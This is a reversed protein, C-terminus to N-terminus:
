AYGDAARLSGSVADIAAADDTSLATFANARYPRRPAVPADGLELTDFIRGLQADPDARLDDYSLEVLQDSRLLPRADFWARHLSDYQRLITTDPSEERQQLMWFWDVTDYLHRTSAFVQHPHRHIHVFRANPFWRLLHPVRATHAPSKLLPRAASDIPLRGLFHHLANRFRAREADSCDNLTLFREYHPLARPFSRGLYPSCGSLLAIAYEDEEPLHFGLPVDDQVRKPPVLFGFAKSAARESVRFTRPNVVQFANPAVLTPSAAMLHHLWTTGSRWHGVIFVPDPFPRPRARDLRRVTSNYASLTTIQAARHAYVPDIGHARVLRAWDRATAGCLWNMDMRWRHKM